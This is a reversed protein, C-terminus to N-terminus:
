SMEAEHFCALHESQLAKLFVDDSKLLQFVFSPSSTLLINGAPLQLQSHAVGHRDRHNTSDQELAQFHCPEETSVGNVWPVRTLASIDTSSKTAAQMSSNSKNRATSCGLSGKSQAYLAVVLQKAHLLAFHNSEAISYQMAQLRRRSRLLSNDLM